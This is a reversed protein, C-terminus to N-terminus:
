VDAVLADARVSCDGPMGRMIACKESINKKIATSCCFMLDDLDDRLGFSDELGFLDAVLTTRVEDVAASVRVESGSLMRVRM